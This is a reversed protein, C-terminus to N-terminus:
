RSCRASWVVGAMSVREMDLVLPPLGDHFYCGVLAYRPLPPPGPSRNIWFLIVAVAVVVTGALVFGLGRVTSEAEEFLNVRHGM